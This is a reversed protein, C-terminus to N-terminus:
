GEVRVRAAAEREDRSGEPRTGPLPQKQTAIM